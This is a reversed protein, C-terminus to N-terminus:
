RRTTPAMNCRIFNQHADINSIEFVSNDIVLVRGREGIVCEKVSSNKFFKVIIRTDMGLSKAKKRSPTTRLSDDIISELEELMAKDYILYPEVQTSIYDQSIHHNFDSDVPLYYIIASDTYSTSALSFLGFKLLIIINM